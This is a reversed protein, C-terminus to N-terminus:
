IGYYSDDTVFPYDFFHIRDIRRADPNLPEFYWLRTEKVIWGKYTRSRASLTAVNWLFRYLVDRLRRLGGSSVVSTNRTFYPFGYLDTGQAANAFPRRLIKRTQEGKEEKEGKEKKKGNRRWRRREIKEIKNVGKQVGYRTCYSAFTNWCRYLFTKHICQSVNQFRM